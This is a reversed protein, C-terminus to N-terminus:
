RGPKVKRQRFGAEWVEIGSEGPVYIGYKFYTGREDNNGLPGRWEAMLSGDLFFKIEGNKRMGSRDEKVEPWYVEFKVDMWQDRPLESLKKEWLGFIEKNGEPSKKTKALPPKLHVREGPVTVRSHDARCVLFLYGGGVKLAMPPNGGADIIEGSAKGDSARVLQEKELDYKGLYDKRFEEFSHEVVKGEADKVTTRDPMGHWQSIIGSTTQDMTSPLFLGYEYVWREGKKAEGEGFHYLTSLKQHSLIEENNLEAKEVDQKTVFLTQLEVRRGKNTEMWFYYSPKGQYLNGSDKWIGSGRRATTSGIPIMRGDLIEDEPVLDVQAHFKGMVRELDQSRLKAAPGQGFVPIGFSGAMVVAMWKKM